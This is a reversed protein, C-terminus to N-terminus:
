LSKRMKKLTEDERKRKERKRESNGEGTSRKKYRARGEKGAGSKKREEKLVMYLLKDKDYVDRETCSHIYDVKIQALNKEGYFVSDYCTGNICLAQKWKFISEFHREKDGIMARITFINRDRELTAYHKIREKGIYTHLCNPKCEIYKANILHPHMSFTDETLSMKPMRDEQYAKRLERPKYKGQYWFTIGKRGWNNLSKFEEGQENVILVEGNENKRISANHIEKTSYIVLCNEGCEILGHRMLTLLSGDSM